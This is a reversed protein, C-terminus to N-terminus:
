LGSHKSRKSTGASNKAAEIVGEAPEEETMLRNLATIAATLGEADLSDLMADLEGRSKPFPVPVDDIERVAAAVAFPALDDGRMTTLEQLRAQESPKLRKVGLVRGLADAEREIRDYKAKRALIEESKTM